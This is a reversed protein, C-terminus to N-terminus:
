QPPTNIPPTPNSWEPQEQPPMPPQGPMEQGMPPMIQPTPPTSPPLGAMQLAAEIQNISVQVGGKILDSIAVLIQAPTSVPPPPPSPPTNENQKIIEKAKDAISSFQPYTDLISAAVDPLLKSLMPVTAIHASVAGAEKRVQDDTERVMSGSVVSLLMEGKIDESSVEQWEQTKSGNIKVATPTQLNAQDLQLLSGYIDEVFEEVMEQEEDERAQSRSEGIQDQGLTENVSKGSLGVQSMGTIVNIDDKTLRDMEDNAMTQNADSIPVVLNNINKGGELSIPVVIGDQGEEIKAIDDSGLSSDVLYKRNFRKRHISKQTRTKNLELQLKEMIQITSIPWESELDDDGWIFRVPIAKEEGFIEAYPNEEPALIPKDESQVYVAREESDYYHFTKIRALDKSESSSKNSKIYSISAPRLNKLVEQDYNKNKKLDDLSSDVEIVVYPQKEPTFSPPLHLKLPHIRRFDPQDSNISKVEDKDEELDTKWGVFFAGIGTRQWDTLSKKIQSRIGLKRDNMQKNVVPEAKEAALVAKENKPNVPKVNIFPNRYYLRSLKNKIVAFVYNVFIYDSQKISGPRATGNWFKNWTKVKDHWVKSNNRAVLIRDLIIKNKDETETKEKKKAM